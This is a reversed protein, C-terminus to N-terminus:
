EYNKAQRESKAGTARGRPSSCSKSVLCVMYPQNTSQNKLSVGGWLFLTVGSFRLMLDIGFGFLSFAWLICTRASCLAFLCLRFRFLVFRGWVFCLFSTVGSFRLIVNIAFLPFALRLIFEIAFGFLSFACVICMRAARTPYVHYIQTKKSEAGPVSVAWPLLTQRKSM